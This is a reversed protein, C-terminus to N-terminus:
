RRPQRHRDSGSRDNRDGIHIRLEAHLKAIRYTYGYGSSYTYSHGSGYPDSNTNINGYTNVNGDPKVNADADADWM